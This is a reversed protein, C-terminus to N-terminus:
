TKLEDVFRVEREIDIGAKEKVKRRIHEALARVDKAKANGKNVIFNAHKTSVEAGGMKYGKLGAQEILMGASAGAPNQFVCGCSAEKCPQTKMRYDVHERLRAKASEDEKLEFRAGLIAGKITHFMSKRYSFVLEEKSFTRINGEEDMWEVESVVDSVEQGGAGANMFVAGGVTGPIGSAFELGSLGKRSVRTGLVAFPFGGGVHLHTGDLEYFDIRNVIVLKDLGDDPFISNSGKGVLFYAGQSMELAQKMEDYTKVEVVLSPGGIKFTSYKSLFQRKPKISFRTSM